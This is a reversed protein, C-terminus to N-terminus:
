LHTEYEVRGCSHLIRYLTLRLLCLYQIQRVASTSLRAKIVGTIDDNQSALPVSDMEEVSSEPVAHRRRMWWEGGMTWESEYSHINFSFRSCLALDPSTRAAYAALIHGTIPNLVATITTPPQPPLPKSTSSEHEDTSASEPLTTFRMGM